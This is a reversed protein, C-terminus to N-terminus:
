PTEALRRERLEKIYKSEPFLLEAEALAQEADAQRGLAWLVEVIHGAVEPDHLIEYAEGLYMLAEDHKGQRHLVWGWSDIIAASDPEMKLAKKILKAAESYYDTKDALTYGLANLAMASDPWRKAVHRYEAIAADVNGMRLMLEARSLQIGEDNPRYAVVKDFSEM